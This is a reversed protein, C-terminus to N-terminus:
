FILCLKLCGNDSSAFGSRDLPMSLITIQVWLAFMYPFFIFFNSDEVWLYWVWISYCLSLYSNQAWFLFGCVCVFTCVSLPLFFRVNDLLNIAERSAQIERGGDCTIFFGQVGPRLPYSGKRVPKQLQVSVSLLYWPFPFFGMQNIASKVLWIVM